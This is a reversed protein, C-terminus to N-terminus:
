GPGSPERTTPATGRGSMEKVAPGTAHIGPLSLACATPPLSDVVALMRRGLEDPLIPHTLSSALVQNPRISRDPVEATIRDYLCGEEENWFLSAFSEQARDALSRWRKEGFGELLRLANYWLAQIEVPKGPRPTIVRDGVKADMWTLQGGEEGIEILGDSDAHIGFHTGAAYHEVIQRAAPLLNRKVFEKQGKHCALLGATNIFWLSADVTNYEPRGDPEAFRNPLLGEKCANAYTLLIKRAAEFNGAAMCLGPLSIMSDRGWDEFWHYGAIIGKGEESRRVLFAEATQVLTRIEEREQPWLNFRARRRASEQKRWKEVDPTVPEASAIIWTERESLPLTLIGPSYLDEHYDLGREKEQPYELNHYWEPAAAYAAKEWYVFLEAGWGFGVRLENEKKEADIQFAGRRMLHHFNRGAALPRLRLEVGKAPELLRYAIVAVNLGHPMFVQKELAVGGAQWRFAPFPDLRFEQQLRHGQPHVVGTYQNTSLPYARGDIVLEEELKSLLVTRGAPPNLAAVLLGHYRRTNCGIITSSAFGGLGNTELWERSAAQAFDGCTRADFSIL